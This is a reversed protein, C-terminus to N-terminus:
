DMVRDKMASLIIGLAAANMITSMNGMIDSIYSGVLPLRGAAGAVKALTVAFVMMYTRNSNDAMDGMIGMVLGIVAMILAAEPIATFAGIVAVAMGVLRVIKLANM